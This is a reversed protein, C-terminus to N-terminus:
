HYRYFRLSEKQLDIHVHHTTPSLGRECHADSQISFNISLICNLLQTTIQLLRELIKLYVIINKTFFFKRTM